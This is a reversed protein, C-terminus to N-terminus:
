CHKQEKGKRDDLHKGGLVWPFESNREKKKKKGPTDFQKLATSVNASGEASETELPDVSHFGLLERIGVTLWPDHQIHLM